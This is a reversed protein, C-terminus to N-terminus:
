TLLSGSRSISELLFKKLSQFARNARLFGQILPKQLSEVEELLAGGHKGALLEAM